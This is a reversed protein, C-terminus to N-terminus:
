LFFFFVGGCLFNELGELAPKSRIVMEVQFASFFVGM